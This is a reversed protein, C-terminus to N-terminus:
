KVMKEELRSLTESIRQQSESADTAAKMLTLATERWVDRDKIIADVETSTRFSGRLWAIIVLALLLGPTVTGWPILTLVQDM